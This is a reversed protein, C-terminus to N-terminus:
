KGGGLSHVYVTLLKITDDSLRGEWPPMMGARGYTLSEIIKAKSGGYLWIADALNPSGLATDGIGGEQHCAVCQDQYITKGAAVLSENEARGSLSLVYEAVEEIEQRSLIGDRGYAAMVNQRSDFHANRIGYKITHYIEDLSGGWIWADDNLNPYGPGGQAGRGHCPSCNVAFASSGGAMVFPMLDPNAEIESLSDKQIQDLYPKQEAEAAAMTDELAQRSSWQLVGPTFSDFLPIAPMLIMYVLAWLITAYFTYLWWRPLPNNLEKIGDWEHGTTEVGSVADTEPKGAM